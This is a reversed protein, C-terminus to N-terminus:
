PESFVIRLRKGCARAIKRLTRVEHRMYDPNEYRSIASGTTGVLQALQAQTLGASLRILRLQEGLTRAKRPLALDEEDRRKVFYSSLM